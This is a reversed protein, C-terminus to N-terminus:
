YWIILFTFCCVTICQCCTVSRLLLSHTRACLHAHEASILSIYTLFHSCGKGAKKVEPMIGNTSPTSSPMAPTSSRRKSESDRQRQTGKKNVRHFLPLFLYQQLPPSPTQLHDLHQDHPGDQVYIYIFLLIYLVCVCNNHNHIQIDLAMIFQYMCTCLTFYCPM